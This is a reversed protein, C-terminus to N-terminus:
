CLKDWITHTIGCFIWGAFSVEYPIHSALTIWLSSYYFYLFYYSVLSHVVCDDAITVLQNTVWYQHTYM